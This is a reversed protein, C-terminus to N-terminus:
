YTIRIAYWGSESSRIGLLDVRRALAEEAGDLQHDQHGRGNHCQDTINYGVAGM